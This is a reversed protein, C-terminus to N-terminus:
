GKTPCGRGVTEDQMCSTCSAMLLHTCAALKGTTQTLLFRYAVIKEGRIVAIRQTAISSPYGEATLSTFSSKSCKRSKSLLHMDMGTTPSAKGRTLNDISLNIRLRPVDAIYSPRALWLTTMCLMERISRWGNSSPPRFSSYPICPTVPHVSKQLLTERGGHLYEM